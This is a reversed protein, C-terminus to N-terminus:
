LSDHVIFLSLDTSKHSIRYVSHIKLITSMWIKNTNAKSKILPLFGINLKVIRSRSSSCRTLHLMLHYQKLMVNYFTNHFVAFIVYINRTPVVILGRIVLLVELSSAFNFSYFYLINFISCHDTETVVFINDDNSLM